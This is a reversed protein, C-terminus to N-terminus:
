NVVDQDTEKVVPFSSHGLRTLEDDLQPSQDDSSSFAESRAEAIPAIPCSTARV